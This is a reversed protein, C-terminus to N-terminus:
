LCAGFLQYDPNVLKTCTGGACTPSALRCIPRCSKNEGQAVCMLGPQCDDNSNCLSGARGIRSPGSCACGTNEGSFVFCSLGTTCGSQAAGVPDCPLSCIHFAAPFRGCPVATNCRSGSGCTADETCFRQCTKIPQGELACNFQFCQSGPECEGNDTCSEGPRRSGAQICMGVVSGDTGCSLACTRDGGCAAAPANPECALVPAGGDGVGGDSGLRPRTAGAVITVTADVIQRVRLSQSDKGYGLVLKNSDLAEVEITATGNYSTRFSVSFTVATTPDLNFATGPKEPFLLEDEHSGSTVHVRLTSVNAIPKTSLVSVRAFSEDDACGISCGLALLAALALSHTRKM